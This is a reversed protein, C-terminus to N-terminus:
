DFTTCIVVDRSKIKNTSIFSTSQFSLLKFRQDCFCRIVYDLPCLWTVVRCVPSLQHRSVGAPPTLGCKYFFPPCLIFTNNCVHMCVCMSVYMCVYMCVYVCVYM